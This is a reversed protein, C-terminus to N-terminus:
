PNLPNLSQVSKNPHQRSFDPSTPPMPNMQSIPPPSLRRSRADTHPHPNAPITQPPPYLRGLRADRRIQTKRPRIRPRHLRRLRADKRPQRNQPTTQPPTPLRRPRAAPNRNEARSIPTDISSFIACAIIRLGAHSLRAKAPIARDLPLPNPAHPLPNPAHPLAM